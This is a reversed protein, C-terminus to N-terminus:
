FEASFYAITKGVLEPYTLSFWTEDPRPHMYHDFDRIVSDFERLYTPNAAARELRQPQVESLFRVPNHGVQQWLDPDLSSYLARAEPHWSWWLNYALEHLRSVRSPLTHFVTVLGFAKKVMDNQVEQHLSKRVFGLLVRCKGRAPGPVAKAAASGSEQHVNVILIPITM